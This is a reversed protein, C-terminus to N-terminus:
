SAKESIRHLAPTRSPPYEERVTQIDSPLPWPLLIKIIRPHTRYLRHLTLHSHRSTCMFTNKAFLKKFNLWVIFSVLFPPEKMPTKSLQSRQFSNKPSLTSM